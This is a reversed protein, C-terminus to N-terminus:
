KSAASLSLTERIVSQLPILLELEQPTIQEINLRAQQERIMKELSSSLSEIRPDPKGNQAQAAKLAALRQELRAIMQENERRSDLTKLIARLRQEVYYFRHPRWNRRLLWDRAEPSLNDEPRGDALMVDEANQGSVNQQIFDSWVPLFEYLEEKSIEASTRNPIAELNIATRARYNEYWRVGLWLALALIIIKKLSLKM